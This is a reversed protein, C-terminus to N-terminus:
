TISIAPAVTVLVVVDCLLLPALSGVVIVAVSFKASVVERNRM